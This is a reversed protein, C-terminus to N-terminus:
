YLIERIILETAYSIKPQYIENLLILSPIKLEYPINIIILNMLNMLFYM